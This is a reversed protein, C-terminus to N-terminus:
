RGGHGYESAVKDALSRAVAEAMHAVMHSPFGAMALTRLDLVMNAGGRPGQIVYAVRDGARQSFAEDEELLFVVTEVVQQAVENGLAGGAAIFGRDRLSRGLERGHRPQPVNGLRVALQEHFVSEEGLCSLMRDAWDRMRVELDRRDAAVRRYRDGTVHLDHELRQVQQRMQRRQNRGFRRAM